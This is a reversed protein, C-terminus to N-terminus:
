RCGQKDDVDLLHRSAMSEAQPQKQKHKNMYITVLWAKSTKPDDVLDPRIGLLDGSDFSSKSKSWGDAECIDHTALWIGGEFDYQRKDLTVKTAALIHCLSSFCGFQLLGIDKKPGSPLSLSRRAMQDHLAHLTENM